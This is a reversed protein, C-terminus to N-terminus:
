TWASQRAGGRPLWLSSEGCNRQCILQRAEGLSRSTVHPCIGEHKDDHKDDCTMGARGCLQGESTKYLALVAQDAMQASKHLIVNYEIM